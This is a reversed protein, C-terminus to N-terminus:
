TVIHRCTETDLLYIDITLTINVFKILSEIGIYFISYEIFFLWFGLGVLPKYDVYRSSDYACARETYYMPTAFASGAVVECSLKYWDSSSHLFLQDLLFDINHIMQMVPFQNIQVIGEFIIVFHNQYEFQSYM